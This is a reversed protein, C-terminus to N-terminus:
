VRLLLLKLLGRQIDWTYKYTQSVNRDSVFNLLRSPSHKRHIYIYVHTYTGTFVYMRVRICVWRGICMCVRMAYTRTFVCAFMCSHLYLYLRVRTYICALMCSHAYVCVYMLTCVRLCVRTYM